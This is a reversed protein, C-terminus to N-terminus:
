KKPKLEPIKIIDGTKVTKKNNYVEVYCEMDPGLYNRSISKLTQGEKVTVECKKGIIKWAGTRVKEDKKKYEDMSSQASRNNRKIEGGSSQASITLSFILFCLSHIFRLKITTNYM